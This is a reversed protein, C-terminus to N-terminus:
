NGSEEDFIVFQTDFNKEKEIQLDQLKKVAEKRQHIYHLIQQEKIVDKEICDALADADKLSSNLGFAGTPTMTHCADGLLVVNDKKWQETRISHVNLLVFDNWSTIYTRVNEELEPFAKILKEIFVQFSHKRIEPYTGEKINWGIQVYGKTQTFLSLQFGDVQAMKVSPQWGKPAPIKAWLLDYGHKRIITEIGAKQRVTSSRGDAGIILSSKIFLQEGDRRAQIGFFKGNEDKVLDIVRTNTMLTFNPYKIAEEIIASLLHAQPVHIGLHGDRKEPLVTKFLKGNKWYEIVEMKLLGLKEIKSYLGHKILIAEGEENLHEGRFEKAISKHQELLTVSVGKKALLFALLSGGPGAGVICIDTNIM